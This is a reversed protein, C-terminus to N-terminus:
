GGTIIAVWSYTNAASKLCVSITDTVGGAGQTVFLMGRYNVGATPRAGATNLIVGGYSITSLDSKTQLALNAAGNGGVYTKVYTAVDDAILAIGATSGSSRFTLNGGAYADPAVTAAAFLGMEAVNNGNDAIIQKKCGSGAATSPNSILMLIPSALTRQLLMPYSISASGSTEGIGVNDVGASVHVMGIGSFQANGNADRLVLKSATAADTAAATALQSTHINAATSAGVTAVTPNPYNGSLDGGAAGSPTATSVNGGLTMSASAM